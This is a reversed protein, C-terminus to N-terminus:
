LQSVRGVLSICILAKEDKIDQFLQAISRHNIRCQCCQKKCCQLKMSWFFSQVQLAINAAAILGNRSLTSLDPAKCASVSPSSTSGSLRDQCVAAVTNKGGDYVTANYEVGFHNGNDNDDDGDGKKDLDDDCVDGQM